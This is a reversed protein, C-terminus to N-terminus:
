MQPPFDDRTLSLTAWMRRTPDDVTDPNNLAYWADPFQERISFTRDGSFGRDLSRIVDHRYGESVLATYELTFLVDAITRYDFQNAAKPTELRWVAPRWVSGVSMGEFPRLMGDDPELDFTGAANVPSTFAISEPDCRLTVTQFTSRAVVTRSVGSTSLTASVGTVPPVLAVM